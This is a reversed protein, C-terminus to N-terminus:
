LLVSFPTYKHTGQQPMCYQFSSFHRKRNFDGVKYCCALCLYSVEITPQKDIRTYPNPSVQCFISLCGVRMIYFGRAASITIVYRFTLSPHKTILSYM